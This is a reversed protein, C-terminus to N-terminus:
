ASVEQAAAGEHVRYEKKLVSNLTKRTNNLRNLTKLFDEACAQVQEVNKFLDKEFVDGLCNALPEALPNEHDLKAHLAIVADWCRSRISGRQANKNIHLGSVLVKYYALVEEAALLPLTNLKGSECIWHCLAYKEGPRAETISDLVLTILDEPQLGEIEFAKRIRVVPDEIRSLSYFGEELSSHTKDWAERHCAYVKGLVLDIGSAKFPLSNCIAQIAGAELWNNKAANAPDEFGAGKLVVTAAQVALLNEVLLVGRRASLAHGAKALLDCLESVYRTVVPLIAKRVAPLRQRTQALTEQLQEAAGDCVGRAGVQLFGVRQEATCKNWDPVEVHFAFRDALAIDLAQVGAYVPDVSDGLDPPNIAAWRHVLNHLPIGQVKREHIVPFLRNQIDLRARSIEDFLVAQAGWISAPTEIFKLNGNADPLPYGVLDDFNLLSANYHRWELGLAEAIRQLLLSKGTGHNGLLLLPQETALAALLVPEISEFGALGLQKTFSDRTSIKNSQNGSQDGTQEISQDPKSPETM